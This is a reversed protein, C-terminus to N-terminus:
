KSSWVCPGIRVSENRYKAVTEKLRKVYYRYNVLSTDPTAQHDTCIICGGQKIVPTLRELEKEIAEKGDIISLKNFGGFFKLKPYEQRLAVIDVGANVDIPLFGEIGAELAAPIIIRFDGDTDMFVNEVGHEKLFPIIQQYYPTMFERFMDPSILPGTKGSLDEEFFVLSPTVIRFIKELQEKYVDVMFQAIDKLMEPYDYYAFLSLENDMLFRPEWFFGSLRLRVAYDGNKAGERFPGYAEEMREPTLEERIVKKVREKLEAWDEDDEVVPRVVRVLGEGKPYKRIWGDRDRKIIYGDTEELTEEEFCIFPIRFTIRACPDLGLGTEYKMLTETQMTNYYYQWREFPKNYAYVNETPLEGGHLLDLVGADYGQDTWNKVTLDWPEMSEEVVGYDLGENSFSLTATEREKANM